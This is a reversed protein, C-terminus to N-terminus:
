GEEELWLQAAWEEPWVRNPSRLGKVRVHAITYRPRPILPTVPHDERFIPWMARNADDDAAPDFSADREALIRELDLNNYGVWPLDESRNVLISVDTRGIIGDFDGEQLRNRVVQNASM